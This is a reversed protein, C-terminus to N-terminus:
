LFNMDMKEFYGYSQSALLVGDRTMSDERDLFSV